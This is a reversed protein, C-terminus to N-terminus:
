FTISEPLEPGRFILDPKVVGPSVPTLVIHADYRGTFLDFPFPIRAALNHWVILRPVQLAEDYNPNRQKLEAACDAIDRDPHRAAMEVLRTLDPQFKRLTILASITTNRAESSKPIMMKGGSTFARQMRSTEAEGTEQNFPISFGANGYMAGMIIHTTELDVFPNGLNHLVLGCCHSKYEKFKRRGQSIKERIAKYPDFAMIGLAPRFPAFDKVDFFCKTGHWTILYDPRRSKSEQPQEFDFAIGESSLYQAFLVEGETRPEDM